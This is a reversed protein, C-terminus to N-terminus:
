VGAAATQRAGATADVTHRSLQVTGRDGDVHVEAGHAIAETARPVGVISPIGFERAIIAGHSLMGGREMVLGSILPFVAGWGPDTQRTVLVDGKRLRRTDTVETLVAARATTRGGCVGLGRLIPPHEVAEDSAGTTAAPVFYTGEELRLSDPPPAATVDAFWARRADALALLHHPFMAAGCVLDDIEQVTLLFVDDRTRLHGDDVLREGIALAIRRLRSYLLAQKLRARERLVIARQTWKLLLSTAHWQNVLPVGRVLPRTRLRAALTATQAIRDDRQARLHDAPSPGAQASYAKIIDLLPAADEQFSPVTLMLEGSCRFGWDDLFRDLAAAFPACANDRRVVELADAAPRADLLDALRRDAAVLRSLRWLELAPVSSPLDPLAKLLTNHLAGRDADPVARALWRELAGYCIMSAADALSADTWRNNRIEIFGRLDAALDPLSRSHLRAPHTRAAFEDVTREFRAVRRTVFLYQWATKAAILALEGAQRMAAAGRRLTSTRSPGRELSTDVYAATETDEAGVFGNFWAALHDGFPASRLIGHISTLNYYMRAGHVGIIHRLPQEMAAIRTKSVGLAIGLNRFYHYYGTRAISYLLPSIPQPFNENVNANSWVVTCRRVTSSRSESVKPAAVTIPRAQVIWLRGGRDLTWEIDQPRGFSREIQLAREAIGRAAREDLRVATAGADGPGHHRVVALTRRDVAIQSPTVRGSVLAEGPGECYEILMRGDCAPDITFIVGSVAADIQRQVIVGMGSISRGRQLQYTLARASWRSALVDVIARHAAAPSTVDAISDFQGAFSAEASDEGVGSSRVIATDVRLGDLARDIELSLTRPLRCQRVRAAIREAAVRVEEPPTGARLARSEADLAAALGDQALCADCAARSVVFGEPVPQGMAILAALNRAKGGVDPLHVAEALPVIWRDLAGEGALETRDIGEREECAVRM